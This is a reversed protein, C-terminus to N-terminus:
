KASPTRRFVAWVQRCGFNYYRVPNGWGFLFATAVVDLLRLPAYIAKVAIWVPVGLAGFRSRADSPEAKGSRFLM